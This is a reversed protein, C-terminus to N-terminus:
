YDDPLLVTTVSRDAETIIYFRVGARDNYVSFLRLDQDLAVQNARRDDDDLDGWDGQVHRDLCLKVDEPHVSDAAARTIVTNGLPFLATSM